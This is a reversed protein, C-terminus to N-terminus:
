TLQHIPFRDFCSQPPDLSVNDNACIKFEFYGHHMATLYIKVPIVQGETYNRVITGTAFVGGPAENPKVTEDFPDGCIGCKGDNVQSQRQFIIGILTIYQLSRSFVLSLRSRIWWM